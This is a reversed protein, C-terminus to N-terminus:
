EMRKCNHSQFFENLTKEHNGLILIHHNGLPNRLFYSVPSNLKVKVQTRCANVYNTNEVLYGTTVFYEDLCEGGCKVITVEGVPMIGQISVSTGSEFHSRIIFQETLATSITCHALLIENTRENLMSPNAMFGTQGTITKVTLMTFISQLDGECGALIGEDNLRALALCGSVKLQELITFCSLTLASFGEKECIIRIAKYLRMAKTLDEPSAERCALARNAFTYVAESVDEDSISNYAEHVQEMQIDTYELGWRRKALLYDVDSAILWPSSPGIVGVRKGNLAKTATYNNYNILLQQIVAHIEGHIIQAKMGKYRLWTAIELAAALSNQLGDTLMAIPYPLLEFHQAVLREVGGTAIFLMRFEGEPITQTQRYDVLHLTFYKEIESLLTEHTKLVSTQKNLESSFSILYINM